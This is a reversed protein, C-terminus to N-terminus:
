GQQRWDDALRDYRQQLEVIAEGAIPLAEEVMKINARLHDPNKTGVIATDIAEHGLTFGLALLIPDDPAEPVPGIDTMIQARQQYPGPAGSNGGWAANAIPRKAIIGIGRATAQPFLHTRASQDVPNFSTQLTDFHGSEVAWRAAENDGSYGIYRTRGAQKADLLARIVDGQQLIDLGCSHL